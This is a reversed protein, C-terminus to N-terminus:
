CRPQHVSIDKLLSNSHHRICFHLKQTHTHTHTKSTLVAFFLALVCVCVCVTKFLHYCKKVTICITKKNIHEFLKIYTIFYSLTNGQSQLTNLM